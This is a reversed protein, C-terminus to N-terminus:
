PNPRGRVAGRRRWRPRRPPPGALAARHRTGRQHDPLGAGQSSIEPAANWRPPYNHVRSDRVNMGTMRRAIKVGQTPPDAELISGRFTPRIRQESQNSRATLPFASLPSSQGSEARRDPLGLKPPLTSWPAAYKAPQVHPSASRPLAGSASEGASKPLRLHLPGRCHGLAKAAQSQRSARIERTQQGLSVAIGLSRSRAAIVKCVQQCLFITRERENRSVPPVSQRWSKAADSMAVGTFDRGVTAAADASAPAARLAERSML